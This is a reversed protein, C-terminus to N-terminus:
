EASSGSRIIASSRALAAAAETQDARALLTEVHGALLSRARDLQMPEDGSCVAERLGHMIALTVELADTDLRRDTARDLVHREEGRVDRVTGRLDPNSRALECWSLWVRTGDITAEFSHGPSDDDLPLFALVGDTWVRESISSVWIDGSWQALLHLLRPRNEYHSTLSGLSIRAESALARLTLGGLGRELLIKNASRLVM